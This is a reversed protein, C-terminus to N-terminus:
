VFFQGFRLFVVEVVLEQKCLQEKRASDADQFCEAVEQFNLLSKLMPAMTPKHLKM